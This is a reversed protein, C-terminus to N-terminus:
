NLFLFENSSLLAWCLAQLPTEEPTKTKAKAGAAAAPDLSSAGDPKANLAVTKYSVEAREEPVPASSEQLLALSAAMEQPSPDRQYAIEFAKRVEAEGSGATKVREAMAAAQEHVFPNNLFYLRQLPTNTTYRKEASLTPIPYDFLTQFENPFVRSVAGYMGRRTMKTDLEQSPGGIKSTDLRGAAMLLGDWVGGAELRRQNARWYFRNAGDKAEDAQDPESGLRFARSMVIEKILPKWHMGGAVFQATLFELLEPNSPRDGAFGFNNPTEVIGTGMAWRWIRNVIVRRAIPEAVIDDALELRGSGQMFPKPEGKSFIALFARPADAGFSYPDGRLFIKLDTPQKLDALGMAVPYPQPMAKKFAENEAKMKDMHNSFDPSLRRQLDWGTLKFLGPRKEEDANPNIPSDPLDKEFLDTWLYSEERQMGKLAIQHTILKRKIGNPLPDFQEHPDKIKALMAENEAKIKAHEQDVETAKQYFKHALTQAQDLDGGAAVMKQWPELFSYNTPKKKLFSVWRELMEPDLRYKDAIRAVTANKESGVRWAAVMYDETQAFLAQAELESAKDEFDKLAKERGDLETKKKEYEDVVDKSVLPYAHYNTSAFIGAMRYYDKQPIPDYKHDHCRACGVTLGLLAKSTTDVKDNWESAREIPAPNDNMAWVGIGNFGLGPIMKDRVKPDMLDAALQAKVFTDYPMDNNLANIVWDRYTYAFKYREKHMDKQAIRYDDEAYRTVDLWHRAWLEGFHSSAMLHDVVKEYADPSRDAEFAKVEEYTPMLGTLIYTVRRLLARKDALPAPKLGEEALKAYIFRDIDNKSWASDKVTPAEPKALPQFSWFKRQDPRIVYGDTQSSKPADPWVAGDKVWTVLEDVQAETLRAGLPMKLNTTQRVATILRSQDPAGPVVAPGSKGGKLISERSDLRLGGMQSNTHCAFCNQALLPRIHNEFFDKQEKTAAPPAALLTFSLGLLGILSRLMKGRQEFPVENRYDM